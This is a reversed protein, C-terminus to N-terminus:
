HDVYEGELGNSIKLDININKILIIRCGKTLVLTEEFAGSTDSIKKTTSLSVISGNEHTDFKIEFKQQNPFYIDLSTRRWM